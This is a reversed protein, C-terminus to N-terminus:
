HTQIRALFSLAEHFSYLIYEIGPLGQGQETLAPGWPGRLAPWPVEAPPLARHSPARSCQEQFGTGESSSYIPFSNVM